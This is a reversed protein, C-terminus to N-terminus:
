LGQIQNKFKAVSGDSYLPVNGSQRQLNKAVTTGYMIKNNAPSKKDLNLLFILFRTM